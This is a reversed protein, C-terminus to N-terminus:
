SIKRLLKSWTPTGPEAADTIVLDGARPLRADDATQPKTVISCTYKRPTDWAPNSLTLTGRRDLAYRIVLPAADFLALSTFPKSATMHKMRGNPDFRFLQYPAFLSDSADVDAPKSLAVMQWTGALDATRAPRLEPAQAWAALVCAMVLLTRNRM